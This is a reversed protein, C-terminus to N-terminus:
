PDVDITAIARSPKRIGKINKKIFDITARVEKTKFMMTYRHAEKSKQAMDAFPEVIELADDKKRYLTEFVKTMYESIKEEDNGRLSYAIIHNYPPYGLEYRHKLEEQYYNDFTKARLAKVVYHDIMFSQVSTDDCKSRLEQVFQFARHSSRFDYANMLTDFNAVVGLRPAFWKEKIITPVAIIVAAKPNCKQDKAYYSVKVKPDICGILYAIRESKSRKISGDQDKFPIFDRQNIIIVTQGKKSLHDRIANQVPASLSLRKEPNYNMMDIVKVKSKQDKDTDITQWKMEQSFYWLEISPIHGVWLTDVGEIDARMLATERAHYHPSQEEKYAQNEENFVVILGLRSVQTFVGARMGIYITPENTCIKEAQADQEAVKLNKQYRVIYKQINTDIKGAVYEVMKYEPVLILVSQKKNIYKRLSKNIVGWKSSAQESGYCVTHRPIKQSVRSPVFVRGKRGKKLHPSVMVDLADGLSCGYYDRLRRGLELMAEDFFPKDDIVELLTNLRKYTSRPQFGIVYGVTKRRAFSVKVRSGIEINPQMAKPVAYDFHKDLPRPVVVLAINKNM